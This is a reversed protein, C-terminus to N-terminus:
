KVQKNKLFYWPMLIKELYSIISYLLLGVIALQMLVAFVKPMNMLGSGQMILYGLGSSSGVFEGVIAGIVALTIGIKFGAFLMPAASPLELKFFIQLKSAGLTRFLDVRKDDIANIGSITNILIPFFVILACIIIKSEIDFGFWIILLPAIAIVPIVQLAVLYPSLIKEVSDFKGIFYGLFIGALSGLFFGALIEVLTILTHKLFLYSFVMSIYTTLVTEPQPLIFERLNLAYIFFKWLLIFFVFVLFQQMIQKINM